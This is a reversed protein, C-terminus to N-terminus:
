VITCVRGGVRWALVTTRMRASRCLVAQPRISFVDGASMLSSLDCSLVRESSPSRAQGLVTFIELGPFKYHPYQVSTHSRKCPWEPPSERASRMGRKWDCWARKREAKRCERVEWDTRNLSRKANAKRKLRRQNINLANCTM